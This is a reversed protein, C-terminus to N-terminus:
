SLDEAYDLKLLTEGCITNFINKEKKSWSCWKGLPKFENGKKEPFWSVKGEKQMASSGRIPLDHIKEEPYKLWDLDFAELVKRTVSVPDQLLDEFKVFCIKYEGPNFRKQLDLYIKASDDWQRCVSEFDRNPWTKITSHVVDRGDRMLLLLNERPFFTFFFNLFQMWPVKILLTKSEPVFSHLYNMMGAGFLCLLDNEQLQSRNQQYTQFFKEQHKILDGAHALFPLEWLNNPYAFIEPYLRLVEGFYVTGSRPMVGHLFIAPPRNKGRMASAVELMQDSVKREPKEEQNLQSTLGEHLHDFISFSKKTRSFSFM